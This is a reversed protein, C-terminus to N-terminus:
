SLLTEQIVGNREIRVQIMAKYERLVVLSIWFVERETEGYSVLTLNQVSNAIEASLIHTSNPTARVISRLCVSTVGRGRSIVLELVDEAHRM